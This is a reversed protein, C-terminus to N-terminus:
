HVLLAQLTARLREEYPENKRLKLSAGSLVNWSMTSLVEVLQAHAFEGFTPAITIVVVPKDVLTGDSVLWDLANKLAGPMGHAYEPSSIIVADASRLLDRLARVPPPPEGEDLDPNFHPLGALGEWVEISMDPPALKAAAHLVAANSSGARLSGSIGVVKM